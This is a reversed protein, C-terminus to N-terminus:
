NIESQVSSFSPDTIYVEDLSKSDLSKKHGVGVSNVKVFSCQASYDAVIFSCIQLAANKYSALYGYSPFISSEDM